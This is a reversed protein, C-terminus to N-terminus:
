KRSNHIHIHQTITTPEFQQLHLSPKVNDELFRRWGLALIAKKELESTLSRM